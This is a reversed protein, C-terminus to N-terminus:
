KQFFYFRMFVHADGHTGRDTEDAVEMPSWILGSLDQAIFGSLKSAELMKLIKRSLRSKKSIM